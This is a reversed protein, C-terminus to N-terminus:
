YGASGGTGQQFRFEKIVDALLQRLTSEQVKEGNQLLLTYVIEDMYLSSIFQDGEELKDYYRKKFKEFAGDFERSKQL